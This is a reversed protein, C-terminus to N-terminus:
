TKQINDSDINLQMVLRYADAFIHELTVSIDESQQSQAVYQVDGRDSAIELGPNNLRFFAQFKALVTDNTLMVGSALTITAVAAAGHCTM